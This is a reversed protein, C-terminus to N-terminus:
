MVTNPSVIAGWITLTRSTLITVIELTFDLHRSFYNGIWFLSVLGIEFKAAGAERYRDVESEQDQDKNGFM